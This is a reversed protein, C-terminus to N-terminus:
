MMDDEDQGHKKMMKEHKKMRKEMREQRVKQWEEYQAPTLIGKLKSSTDAEMEHRAKEAKILMDNFVGKVNKMQEDTLKLEEQMRKAMKTSRMDAMQEDSMMPKAAPAMAAPAPAAAPAAATAAIAVNAALLSALVVTSLVTNKM